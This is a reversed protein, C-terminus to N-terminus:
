LESIVGVYQWHTCAGGVVLVVTSHYEPYYDLDRRPALPTMEM